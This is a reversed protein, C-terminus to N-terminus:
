VNLPSGPLSAHATIFPELRDEVVGVTYVKNSGSDYVGRMIIGRESKTTLTLTSCVNNLISLM